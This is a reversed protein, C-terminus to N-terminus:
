DTFPVMVNRRDEFGLTVICKGISLLLTKRYRKIFWHSLSWNTMILSGDYNLIRYAEHFFLSQESRTPLHQVSAIGIVIDCSQQPILELYHNM